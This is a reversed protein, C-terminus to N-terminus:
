RPRTSRRDLGPRRLVGRGLRPRRPQHHHLPREQGPTGHTYGLVVRAPIGAVRLMIGMAAAYQQCYGTRNTLFDVLDNGSDGAKTSLSYSFGNEGDRFYDNLARAQDYPTTKGKIM